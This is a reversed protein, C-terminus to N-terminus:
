KIECSVNNFIIKAGWKDKIAISNSLVRYRYNMAGKNYVIAGDNTKCKINYNIVPEVFNSITDKDNDEPLYNYGLLTIFGVALILWLGAEHEHFEEM